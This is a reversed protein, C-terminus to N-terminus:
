AARAAAGGAHQLLIVMAVLILSLGVPDCLVPWRHQIGGCNGLHVATHTNGGSGKKSYHIRSALTLCGARLSRNKEIINTRENEHGGEPREVEHHSYNLTLDLRLPTPPITNFSNLETNSSNFISLTETPVHRYDTQLMIGHQSIM